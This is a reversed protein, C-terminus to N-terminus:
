GVVLSPQTEHIMSERKSLSAEARKQKFESKTGLGSYVIVRNFVLHNEQGQKM